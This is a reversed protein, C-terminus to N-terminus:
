TYRFLILKSNVSDTLVVYNKGELEVLDMDVIALSELKLVNRDVVM